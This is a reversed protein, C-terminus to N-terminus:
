GAPRGVDSAGPAGPTVATVSALKSASTRIRDSSTGTTTNSHDGRLSAQTSSTSVSAPRAAWSPPLHDNAVTLTSPAGLTAWINPTSATGVTTAKAAPCGMELKWPM